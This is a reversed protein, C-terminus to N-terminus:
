AGFWTLGAGRDYLWDAEFGLEVFVIPIIRQLLGLLIVATGRRPPGDSRPPRPASSGVVGGAACLGILIPLGALM